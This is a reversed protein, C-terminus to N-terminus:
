ESFSLDLTYTLNGTGADLFENVPGQDETSASVMYVAAPLQIRYAYQNHDPAVQISAVDVSAPSAEPVCVLDRSFSVQVVPAPEDGDPFNVGTITGMITVVSDTPQLEFNIDPYTQDAEVFVVRCGPEYEDATVVIRYQTTAPQVDAGNDLYLTYGGDEDTFTSMAVSWSGESDEEHWAVVHANALSDGESNFVTGSVVERFYTGIVKITPKLLYKGSNGAKIVSKAVDFDLILETTRGGVIDFTHVLKIGTQYGSPVKMAHSQDDMDILYQPHPHAEGLLNLSDDPVDDLLLRMQKYTGAELDKQGLNAVVGNVLELLNFTGEITEVTEWQCGCDDDPDVADCPYTAHCVQVMKITVYVAQYEGGPADVLSLSLTGTNSSSFGASGGSGGGCGFAFATLVALLLFWPGSKIANM